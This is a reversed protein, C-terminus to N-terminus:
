AGFGATVVDLLWDVVVVVVVVVTEGVVQVIMAIAAMTTITSMAIATRPVSSRLEVVITRQGRASFRRFLFSRRSGGEDLRFAGADDATRADAFGDEPDM